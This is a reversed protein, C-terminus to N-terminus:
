RSCGSRCFCHIFPRSSFTDVLSPGVRTPEVNRMRILSPPRVASYSPWIVPYSFFRWM